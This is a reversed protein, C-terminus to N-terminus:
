TVSTKYNIGAKPIDDGDGPQEAAVDDESYPLFPEYYLGRRSSRFTHESLALAWGSRNEKHKDLLEGAKKATKGDSHVM